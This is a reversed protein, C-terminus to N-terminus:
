APHIWLTIHIPAKSFLNKKSYIYKINYRYRMTSIFYLKTMFTYHGKSKLFGGVINRHPDVGLYQARVNYAVAPLPWIRTLLM